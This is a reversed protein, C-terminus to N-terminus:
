SFHGEERNATNNSTRDASIQLTKSATNTQKKKKM